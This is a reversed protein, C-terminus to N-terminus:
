RTGPPEGRVPTVGSGAEALEYAAPDFRRCHWRFTSTFRPWLTANRGSRPHLYWSGCGGRNWVTRALRRQLDENWDRQAQDRVEIRTSRHRQMFSLMDILYRIQGEIMLLVSNHGLATNPGLLTFFNPFGAVTSGKYAQPGDAWAEALDRGQHGIILGPPVPSTAQFGTGLVILDAPRRQGSRDIIARGELREIPETVLEVNAAAVAPYYDNSMLVRKCGMAYDPTLQERLAPDSVQSLLHRRAKRRHFATMRPWRAFAPLRSELLLFQSLRLALRAPAFRRYLRQKWGAIARDPRPLIWQASRQYIDVARADRQLHPVFQIASAGTGIVAVRQDKLNLGDPWRQSHIVPGDFDALGEIDPWAPRSLGGIASVLMRGAFVRGHQDHVRWAHESEQWRAQVVRTDLHIRPAIGHRTVLDELYQQIEARAAFRRSWDAKPAFSLSYLHSQVDCACGPYRNVWWTGGVGSEADLVVFDDFGARRLRIALGIGAFGAGIIVLGTKVVQSAVPDTM